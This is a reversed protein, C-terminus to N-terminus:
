NGCWCVFHWGVRVPFYFLSRSSFGNEAELDRSGRQRCLFGFNKFAIFWIKLFVITNTM